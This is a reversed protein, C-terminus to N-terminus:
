KVLIEEIGLIEKKCKKVSKQYTQSIKHLSKIDDIQQEKKMLNWKKYNKVVKSFEGTHIYETNYMTKIEDNKMNDILNKFIKYTKNTIKADRIKKIKFKGLFKNNENFFALYKLLSDFKRPSFEIVGEHESNFCQLPVKKPHYCKGLCDSDDFIRRIDTLNTIKNCSHCYGIKIFYNKIRDTWLTSIQYYKKMDDLIELVFPKEASDM